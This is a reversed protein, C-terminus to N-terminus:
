SAVDCYYIADFYTDFQDPTLVFYCITNHPNVLFIKSIDGNENKEVTVLAYAHHPAIGM